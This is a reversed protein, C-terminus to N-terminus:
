EKCEGTEHDYERARRALEEAYREALARQQDGLTRDPIGVILAHMPDEEEPARNVDLGTDRVADSGIIATARDRKAYITRHLDGYAEDRISVSLGDRDNGNARPLFAAKKVRGNKIDTARAGRLLSAVGVSPTM